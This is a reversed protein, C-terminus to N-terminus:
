KNKRRPRIYLMYFEGVALLILIVFVSARAISMVSGSVQKDKDKTKSMSTVNRKLNSNMSDLSYIVARMSDVVNRYYDQLEKKERDVVGERVTTKKKTGDPHEEETVTEKYTERETTKTETTSREGMSSVSAEERVNKEVRTTDVAEVLLETSSQEHSSVTSTKTSGCGTLLIASILIYLHRRM